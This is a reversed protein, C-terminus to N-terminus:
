RQGYRAKVAGWSMRQTPLPTQGSAVKVYYRSQEFYAISPNVGHVAISSQSGVDGNADVLQRRWSGAVKGAYRLDQNTVDYYSVHPQGLADLALSPFKGVNGIFDIIIFSWGGASRTGYLLDGAVQDYYVMHLVDNADIALAGGTGIPLDERVWNAGVKTWYQMPAGETPTFVFHPANHSDFALSLSPNTPLFVTPGIQERDFDLFGSYLGSGWSWYDVVHAVDDHDLALAGTWPDLGHFQEFSWIGGTRRAVTTISSYILGLAPDGTATLALSRTSLMGANITVTERSWFVGSKRALLVGGRYYAVSPTGDAELALSPNCWAPVGTDLVEISFTTQALAPSAAPPFLFVAAILISVVARM